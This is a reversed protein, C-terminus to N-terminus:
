LSTSSLAMVISSAYFRSIPSDDESVKRFLRAEKGQLSVELFYNVNKELYMLTEEKKLVPGGSM